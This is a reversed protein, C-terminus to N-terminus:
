DGPRHTVGRADADSVLLQTVREVMSAVEVPRRQLERPRAYQLLDELLHDLRRIEERVLVLPELTGAQEAGAVEM